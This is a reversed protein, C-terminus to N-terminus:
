TNNNYPKFFNQLDTKLTYYLPLLCASLYDVKFLTALNISIRM